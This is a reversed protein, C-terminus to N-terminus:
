LMVDILTSKDINGYSVDSSLSTRYGFCRRTYELWCAVGGISKCEDVELWAPSVAMMRLGDDRCLDNTMM